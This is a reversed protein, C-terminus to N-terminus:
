IDDGLVTFNDYGFSESSSLFSCLSLRAFPTLIVSDFRFIVCIPSFMGDAKWLIVFNYMDFLLSTDSDPISCNRLRVCREMANLWMSFMSSSSLSFFGFSNIDNDTFPFINQLFGKALALIM